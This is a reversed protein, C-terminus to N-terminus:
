YLKMEYFKVEWGCSVYINISSLKSVDLVWRYTSIATGTGTYVYSSGPTFDSLVGPVYIYVDQNSNAVIELTHNENTNIASSHARFNRNDGWVGINAPRGAYWDGGFKSADGSDCTWQLSAQAIGATAINCPNGTYVWVAYMTTDAAVTVYTGVAYQTGGASGLAWKSFGYSTKTFGNARLSFTPNSVSGSGPCYYRTGSQAAVSGSTAGNGYYSLTITQYYMGYLTINSSRTFSAGNNYTIGGTASTSTSWGRATWGSLGAQSLAFSPDIAGAPAWYRVKTSASASTSGNYYTVTINQQYLGYLTINSDRTFTAGNAYTIGANGKNTTSWGRATWGSSSAQTLKFNPNAINGNNYVRSNSTYSPSGSLNYYTVTVNQMFVAYLTIPADGMTLDREMGLTSATTDQRWGAFTWGSKAPTFSKPSLVSEGEDTEERYTVGVDVHYTVTNGASYVLMDGVSVKSIVHTDGVSIKSIQNSGVSAKAM